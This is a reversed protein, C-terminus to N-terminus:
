VGVARGAELEHVQAGAGALEVLRRHHTFFLIQMEAAMEALVELTARSREDDFNVLLDDLVLPMPEHTAARHRLGALRLALYLQDRTGDSLQEIEKRDGGDPVALLQPQGGAMETALGRYRGLTIRQFIGGAMELLPGQHQRAFQEAERSLLRWALRLRAYQEAYGAVEALAEQATEAAQAAQDSGDMANLRLKGAAAEEVRQKQEDILEGNRRQLEEVQGRLQDVDRGAAEAALREIPWGDGQQVLDDELTVVEQDLKLARESDAIAAPLEAASAAGATQCQRALQATAHALQAQASRQQRVLDEQRQTKQERQTQLKQAERLRQGLVAVAEDPATGSLGPAADALLTELQGAYEENNAEISRVRTQYGDAEKLLEFFQDIRTLLDSASDPPLVGEPSLGEVAEAWDSQWQQTRAEAEGLEDGLRECEPRLQARQRLLTQRQQATHELQRLRQQALSRLRALPAAEEAAAGAGALEAQLRERHQRLAEDGAEAQQQAQRLEAVRQRLKEQQQMWALMEAPTGPTIGAPQWLRQWAQRQREQEVELGALEEALHQQTAELRAQGAQLTEYEAVRKADSRLADALRDAAGMLEAFTAALAAAGASNGEQWAQLLQQWHQDRQRRAEELAAPTPVTGGLLLSNLDASNERIRHRCEARKDEGLQRRQRLEDGASQQQQLAPLLPLPLGEFEEVIGQWCPLRRLASEVEQALAAAKQRMERARLDLDGQASAAELAPPLGDAVLEAPLGELEAEVAELQRRREELQQRAHRRTEGLEIHRKSLKDIRARRVAGIRLVQSAESLPLGPRIAALLEEARRRADTTRGHLMRIDRVGDTYKQRGQLLREIRAAHELLRADPILAELEGALQDLEAAAMQADREAERRETEAQRYQTAFDSSLLKVAGMEAREALKARRRELPKLANLIRSLRREETQREALEAAVARLRSQAEEFHKEAEAWDKPRVGAHRAISDAEKWRSLAANLLPKSGRPAFLRAAEEQLGGLLEHLNSVGAAAGYLSQGLDGDAQLLGQSGTKLDDHSLGFQREYLERPVGGLYAALADEPLPEETRNLLKNSNGKRRVFDLREGARNEIVAGLRLKNKPHLFDYKTQVDIDYLLQVIAQLATSKGAENPGYIIHLDHGAPGFELSRGDFKGFAILDLQRFRM